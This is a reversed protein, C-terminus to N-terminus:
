SQDGGEAERRKRIAEAIRECSALVDNLRRVGEPTLGTEKRLVMEVLGSIAMLPNNIEHALARLLERHSSGTQSVDNVTPESRPDSPQVDTEEATVM